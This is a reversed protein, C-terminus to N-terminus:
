LHHNSNLLLINHQLHMNQKLKNRLNLLQFLEKSQLEISVNLLLYHLSMVFSIFSEFMLYESLIMKTESFKVAYYIRRIYLCM